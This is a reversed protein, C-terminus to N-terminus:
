VKFHGIDEQLKIAMNALENAAGTIQHMVSAQEETAASVNQSKDTVGNALEQIKQVSETVHQSSATAHNISKIATEIHGYLENVRDDIKAFAEGARNVVESSSQVALNQREMAAVAADTDKQIGGILSAINSAAEGSQEALMHGQGWVPTFAVDSVGDYHSLALALNAETCFSTDTQFLGSNIRWHPAVGATGFGDYGGSLFYLPNLMNVRTTVTTGLADEKAVDDGWETVYKKDWQQAGSYADIHQAILEAATKSFHLTSEDDIGFTQNEVSSRDVADFACVGKKAPKLNRVFAGLSQIRATGRRQNYTLWYDSANLASVYDFVTNYVTSQVQTTGTPTSTTTTTTTTGETTTTTTTTATGSATADTSSSTAAQASADGTVAEVDTVGAASSQLNPDGPFSPSTIFTPTYTYPFTTNQFFNAAAAEVQDVMYNYYTGDTFIEGSTEDLTLANDTANELKWKGDLVM